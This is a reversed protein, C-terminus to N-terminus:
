STSFQGLTECGVGEGIFTTFLNSDGGSPSGNVNPVHAVGNSGVSLVEVLCGPVVTCTNSLAPDANGPLISGNYNYIPVSNWVGQPLSLQGAARGVLGLLLGLVAAILQVSQARRMSIGM